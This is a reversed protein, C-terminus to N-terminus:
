CVCVNGRSPFLRSGLPLDVADGKDPDSAWAGVPNSRDRWLRVPFVEQTWPPAKRHGLSGPSTPSSCSPSVCFSSVDAVARHQEGQPNPFTAMTIAAGSGRCLGDLSWLCVPIGSSVKPHGLIGQAAWPVDWPQCQGEWSWEGRAGGAAERATDWSPGPQM